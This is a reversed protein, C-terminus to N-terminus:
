WFHGTFLGALPESIVDILDPEDIAVEVADQGDASGKAYLLLSLRPPTDTEHLILTGWAGAHRWTATGELRECAIEHAITPLMERLRADLEEVRERFVATANM